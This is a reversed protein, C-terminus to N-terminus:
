SARVGALKSAHDAFWLAEVQPAALLRFEDVSELVAIDRESLGARIQELTRRGVRRASMTFRRRLAYSDAGWIASGTATVQHSAPQEDVRDSPRDSVEHDGGRAGDSRVKTRVQESASCIPWSVSSRTPTTGTAAEVRRG